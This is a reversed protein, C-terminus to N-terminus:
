QTERARIPRSPHSELSYTTKKAALDSRSNCRDSLVARDRMSVGWGWGFEARVPDIQWGWGM